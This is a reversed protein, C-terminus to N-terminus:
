CRGAVVDGVPLVWWWSCGQGGVSWLLRRVVFCSLWMGVDSADVVVRAGEVDGAAVDCLGVVFLGPRGFYSLRGILLWMGVDGADVVVCAGEVDGAAM